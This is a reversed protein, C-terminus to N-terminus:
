LEALVLRGKDAISYKVIGLAGVVGLVCQEADLEKLCLDFEAGPMPRAVMLEVQSKLATVPCPYGGCQELAQLIAKKILVKLEASM